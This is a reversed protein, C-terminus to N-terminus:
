PPTLLCFGLLLPFLEWDQRQVVVQTHPQLAARHLESCPLSRELKCEFQWAVCRGSPLARAGSGHSDRGTVRCICSVLAGAELGSQSVGDAFHPRFRCCALPMAKLPHKSLSCWFAQVVQCLGFRRAWCSSNTTFSNRDRARISLPFQPTPEQFHPCCRGPHCFVPVYM